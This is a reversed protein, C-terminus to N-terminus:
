QRHSLDVFLTPSGAAWQTTVSGMADMIDPKSAQFTHGRVCVGVHWLKNHCACSVEADEGFMKAWDDLTMADLNASSTIM